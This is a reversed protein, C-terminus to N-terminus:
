SQLRTELWDLFPEGEETALDISLVRLVIGRVWEPCIKVADKETTVWICNEALRALEVFDQERYAYHDPFIKEQVVHAGLAELTRRFSDPNAIGALMGVRVSSLVSPLDREEDSISLVSIPRRQASFWKARPAKRALLEADQQELPGDMVWIADALSLAALPERLPGRPLVRANGLGRKGDFMLIEVDRALRHHQFGDDLILVDTAYNRIAYEGVRDRQAGVLIPVGPVRRALWLPEDGARVANDLIKVGDSVVLVEEHGDRGYGRSAVAVRYGRRQLSVALWAVLPTKGSGGVLLNGVSVVRCALRTAKKLGYRYALRHLRAGFGYPASLMALPLLAARELWSEEKKHLWSFSM